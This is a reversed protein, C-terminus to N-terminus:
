HGAGIARTCPRPDYNQPALAMFMRIRTPGNLGEVFPRRRRREPPPSDPSNTTRLVRHHTRGVAAPALLLLSFAPASGFHGMCTDLLLAGSDALQLTLHGLAISRGCRGLELV